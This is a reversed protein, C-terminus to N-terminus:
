ASGRYALLASSAAGNCDTTVAQMLANRRDSGSAQVRMAGSLSRAPTLVPRELRSWRLKNLDFSLAVWSGARGCADGTIYNAGLILLRTPSGLTVVGVLGADEHPSAAGAKPATAFLEPTTWTRWGRGADRSVLLWGRHYLINNASYSLTMWLVLSAPRGANRTIVLGAPYPATPSIEANGDTPMVISQVVSFHQGGDTSRSITALHQFKSFTASETRQVVWLQQPDIPDVGAALVAPSGNSGPVTDDQSAGVSWSAGADHTVFWRSTNDLVRSGTNPYGFSGWLTGAFSASQCWLYATNPASPAVFLQRQNGVAGQTCAPAVKNAADVVGPTRIAWTAGGDKSVALSDPLVPGTAGNSRGSLVVYVYQKASIAHTNPAVVQHVQGDSAKLALVPKWTCGGDASRMLQSALTDAGSGAQVAFYRGPGSPDVTLFINDVSTAGFPQDITTWRGTSHMASCGAAGASTLGVAIGVVLCVAVGLRLIRHRPTM